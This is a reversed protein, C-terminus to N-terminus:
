DSNHNKMTYSQQVNKTGLHIIKCKGTQFQLQWKDAWEVLKDLYNQLTNRSEATEVSSSIKTDDAYMACWSKVGEPLDNIFIVFLVPGLVSGQPVGSAVDAWDSYSGQVTM